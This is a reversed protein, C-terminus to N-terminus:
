KCKGNDNLWICDETIEVSDISPYATECQGLINVEYRPIDGKDLGDPLYRVVIVRIGDMCVVTGPAFVAKVGQPAQIALLMALILTKM